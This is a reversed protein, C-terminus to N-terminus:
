KRCELIVVILCAIALMGVYILLGIPWPIIM